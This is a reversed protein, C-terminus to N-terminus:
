RSHQLRTGPVPIVLPPTSVTATLSLANLRMTRAVEVYSMPFDPIAATITGGDATEPTVTVGPETVTIRPWVRVKVAVTCPVPIVPPLTRVTSAFSVADLRVTRAVEAYSVVLDMVAVTVTQPIVPKLM